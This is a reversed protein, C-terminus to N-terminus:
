GCYRGLLASPSELAAQMATNVTVTVAVSSFRLDTLQRDRGSPYVQNGTSQARSPNILSLVVRLRLRVTGVSGPTRTAALGQAQSRRWGSPQPIGTVALREASQSRSTQTSALRQASSACGSPFVPLRLRLAGSLIQCERPGHGLFGWV